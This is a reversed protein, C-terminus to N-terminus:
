DVPELSLGPPPSEGLLANQDSTAVPVAEDLIRLRVDGIEWKRLHTRIEHRCSKPVDLPRLGTLRAARLWAAAADPRVSEPVDAGRLADWAAVVSDPPLIRDAGCHYLVRSLLRGLGKWYASHQPHAALAATIRRVIDARAGAPLSELAGALLAIEAPPSEPDRWGALADTWVATSQREDLGAAIRRAAIWRQLKVSGSAWVPPSSLITAFPGVRADDGPVGCGPRLLFGAVQLWAEERDASETRRPLADFLQRVIGGTWASKALGLAKEGASFVANATIKQNALNPNRSGDFAAAMAAAASAAPGAPAPSKQPSRAPDPRPKRLSFELPWPADWKLAREACLLEVRLLGTSRLTTRLGVRVGPKKPPKAGPPPSLVAELVPLETFGDGSVLAGPQDDHRRAHRFLSFSVPKGVTAHLRDPSVAHPAEAAAGYPLVCLLRGDGVGVYYSHATGSEIRSADGTARLHLFRAAGRAVALDPDPNELVEPARGDQWRAINELVRRRVASAKTIGGNFLVHDVAPRGQLFEALHRTVAPDKAYPLGMERLGPTAHLPIERAGVDPFFGELLLRSVEDSAVETRLTGAVLSTGPKAIAVPWVQRADGGLAEEKIERCRSLLRAFTAAPLQADPVLRSELHHALALDLNDGGLLIHDSVAIRTLRPVGASAGAAPEIAFLSLDTTGGGIDVVLVHAPKEGALRRLADPSSEMWAYFAAQPEELLIAPFGAMRAAELTLQQAAPDFSAPVTIALDQALLPAHPHVADWAAALKELLLSLARLPSIRLAPDTTGLPLFDARRDAAHHVMWSKASSVVRGPVEAARTQAWRGAVWDTRGPALYLFSPLTPLSDTAGDAVPQPIALVSSVDGDPAVSALACNTTGLDIGIRFRSTCASM